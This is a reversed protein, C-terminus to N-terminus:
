LGVVLAEVLVLWEMVVNFSGVVLHAIVCGAQGMEIAHIEEGM